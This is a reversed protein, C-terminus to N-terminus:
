RKKRKEEKNYPLWEKPFFVIKKDKGYFINTGMMIENLTKDELALMDDWTKVERQKYAQTAKIIEAVFKRGLKHTYTEVYTTKNNERIAIFSWKCSM